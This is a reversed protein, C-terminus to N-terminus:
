AQQTICNFLKTWTPSLWDPEQLLLLQPIEEPLEEPSREMTLPAQTLFFDVKNRSIADALINSHGPIHKATFWFCHKAACFVLCRLYAMLCSDRCYLKTLVTVVAQNDCNFQVVRGAWQKGWVLGAIVIPILEKQAIALEGLCEPWKFILWKNGAVGGCGWSGSADTWMRTDPTSSRAKWFLLVGNWTEMFTLWWQIDNRVQRNLRAIQNPGGKVATLEYIHRVFCRGPRVVKAVHQLKGALSQADRKSVAKKGKWVQLLSRFWHYGHIVLSLWCYGVIVLLIVLSLTQYGIVVLHYGIIVLLLWRYGVILLIYVM